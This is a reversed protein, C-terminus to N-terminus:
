NKINPSMYIYIVSLQLLVVCETTQTPFVQLPEVSLQLLM